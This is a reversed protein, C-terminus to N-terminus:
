LARRPLYMGGTRHLLWGAPPRSPPERQSFTPTGGITAAILPATVVAGDILRHMMPIVAGDFYHIQTTGSGTVMRGMNPHGDYLPRVWRHYVTDAEGQTITGATEVPLTNAANHASQALWLAWGVDGGFGFAGTSANGVTLTTSGTFNGASVVDNTLTQEVPPTDADGTWCRWAEASGTNTMSLLAAIFTWRDNALVGAPTSWEGDTTVNDTFLGVKSSDASATAISTIGGAGMLTKDASIATPYFWGAMLTCTATAGVSVTGVISHRQTTSASAYSWTV